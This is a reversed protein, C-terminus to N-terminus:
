FSKTSVYCVRFEDTATNNLKASQLWEPIAPRNLENKADTFSKEIAALKAMEKDHNESCQPCLAATKHSPDMNQSVCRALVPLPAPVAKCSNLTDLPVGLLKEAGLRAYM